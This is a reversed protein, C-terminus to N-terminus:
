DRNRARIRARRAAARQKTSTKGTSKKGKQTRTARKRAIKLLNKLRNIELNAKKLDADKEKLRRALVVNKRDSSRRAQQTAHAARKENEPTEDASERKKFDAQVRSLARYIKPLDKESAQRLRSSYYDVKAALDKHGADEFKDAALDLERCVASKDIKASKM